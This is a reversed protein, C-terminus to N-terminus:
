QILTTNSCENHMSGQEMEDLDDFEEDSGEM